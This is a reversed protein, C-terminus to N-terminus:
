SKLQHIDDEILTLRRRLDNIRQEVTSQADSIQKIEAQENQSFQATAFYPALPHDDFSSSPGALLKDYLLAPPNVFVFEDYFESVVPKKPNMPSGDAPFLRLHHYVSQPEKLDHFFIEIKITFEGWGVESLEYPPAEIARVPDVFSQHLTFVVKRVYYNLNENELGRVYITWRHTKEEEAHKGLYFAVTGYVFPKVVKKVEKTEKIATSASPTVKAEKSDTAPTSKLASVSASTVTPVSTNM